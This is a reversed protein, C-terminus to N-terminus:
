RSKQCRKCYVTTRGAVVLMKLTDGCRFCPRGGRGYVQLSAAFGGPQGAVNRYDRLTTGGASLSKELVRHIAKVVGGIQAPTLRRVPILPSLGCRWLAEDVYINGLGAVDRQGLLRAKLRGRAAHWHSLHGATLSLADVGLVGQIEKACAEEFTAYYWVGGFRRPDRMRIQLGSNLDIIFHTHPPVPLNAPVSELRGSMGLHFMLTQGDDCCCFLKKGHRHTAVVKRGNLRVLPARPPTLYDQRLLRVRLVVAGIVVPELTRRVEQVEPLEPM